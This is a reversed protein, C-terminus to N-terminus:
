RRHCRLQLYKRSPWNLKFLCLRTGSSISQMVNYTAPTGRWIAESSKCPDKGHHILAATGAASPLRQIIWILSDTTKALFLQFEIYILEFLTDPNSPFSSSAILFTQLFYFWNVLFFDITKLLCRKIGGPLEKKIGGGRGKTQSRYRNHSYLPAVRLVDCGNAM